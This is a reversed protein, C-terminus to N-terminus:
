LLLSALFTLMLSLILLIKTIRKQSVEIPVQFKEDDIHHLDENFTFANSVNNLVSKILKLVPREITSEYITYNM